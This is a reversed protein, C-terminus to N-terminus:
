DARAVGQLIEGSVAGVLHAFVEEGGDGGAVAALLKHVGENFGVFGFEIRIVGGGLENGNVILMERLVFDLAEQLEVARGEALLEGRLHGLDIRFHLGGVTGETHSDGLVHQLVEAFLIGSDGSVRAQSFRALPLYFLCLLLRLCLRCLGLASRRTENGRFM